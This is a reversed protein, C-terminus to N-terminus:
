ARLLRTIETRQRKSAIGMVILMGEVVGAPQYGKRWADIFRSMHMIHDEIGPMDRVAILQAMAGFDVGALRAGQTTASPSRLAADQASKQAIEGARRMGLTRGSLYAAIEAADADAQPDARVERLLINSTESAFVGRAETWNRGLYIEWSRRPRMDTRFFSVEEISSIFNELEHSREQPLYRLFRSKM